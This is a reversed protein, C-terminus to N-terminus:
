CRRCPASRSSRPRPGGEGADLDAADVGDRRRPRAAVAAGGGDGHPRQASLRPLHARHAGEQGHQDPLPGPQRPWRRASTARSPRRRRGTSSAASPRRAAHRRAPGQRRDDQLLQRARAGRAARANGARGRDGDVFPVDPAPDLDFVLRGPVEPKGRSRLELSAAGARRDARGRGPRRRPRDASLAQPRRVGDGARAPQVHGAHRPAPLVARRRHRGARPHDLLAPGQYAAIMWAGVAEYYRALDLKTVPKGDDADPWLPKDPNSISCAWSSRGDAATALLKSPTARQGQATPVETTEPPRRSRPRSRRRGAQGRAPGQLRGSAGHRRRDLRRVRDRGGARAQVWHVNAEKSRARRHRHVPSDDRRRGGAAAAALRSRPRASAPASAASMSSAARRSARRRAALPVQREDHTWGGIVVEHGARCKSKAWHRAAAPAIPRTSRAELRHRGPAHRCASHLVAEGATEFHEVYRLRMSRRRHEDLLEQLRAKREACRCRACIRAAPSCCTSPSSSWRRGDQRRVAGGAARRFGARRERRARLGRRRHDCDPLKAPRERSPRFKATWDLGKRTTLTAEGDQSACSCATATSSSRTCGAPERRAAREVLSASSRSSSTPCRASRAHSKGQKRSRADREDGGPGDQQEGLGCRGSRAAQRCSRSRSARGQGGRDDEM